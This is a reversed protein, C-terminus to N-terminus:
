AKKGSSEKALSFKGNMFDRLVQEIVDTMEDFQQAIGLVRWGAKFLRAIARKQKLTM